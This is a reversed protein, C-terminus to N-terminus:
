VYMHIYVCVFMCVCVLVCAHMCARVCVCVCLMSPLLGGIKSPDGGASNICMDRLSIDQLKNMQSLLMYYHCACYTRVFVFRIKETIKDKGVMHVKTIRSAEGVVFMDEEADDAVGGAVATGEADYRQKVAKLFTM